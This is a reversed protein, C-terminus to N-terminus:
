DGYVEKIKENLDEAQIDHIIKGDVKYKEKLQLIRRVSEDIRAESIEGQEVAKKVGAYGLELSEDGHAILLMDVGAQIAKVTVEDMAYHETIAGMTLDDTVIVGDFQWDERLISVAEKSMTAPLDSGLAPVVVHAVLVMDAGSDIAKKFPIFENEELEERSKKVIPLDVHSDVSTDGHGPFHKIATIIGKEQLGKMTAIGMESVLAADSGFARDGIVTNEPNSNIDLVPAFDVHFGYAQLLTGLLQGNRFAFDADGTAGIEAASRLPVIGPLRTVRGGEEDVSLFLHIDNATQMEKLDNLLQISQKPEELNPKFLIVGGLHYNHVKQLMAESLTTGDVGAIFLQGIKEDLSMRAIKEDMPDRETKTDEKAPDHQIPKEPEELRDQDNNPLLFYVVVGVVMAVLIM